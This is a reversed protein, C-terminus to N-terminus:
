EGESPQYIISRTTPDVSIKYRTVDMGGIAFIAWLPVTICPSAKKYVRLKLIQSKYIM